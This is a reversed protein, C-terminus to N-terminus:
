EFDELLFDRGLWERLKSFTYAVKPTLLYYPNLTSRDLWFDYIESIKGVFISLDPNLVRVIKNSILDENLRPLDYELEYGAPRCHMKLTLNQTRGNLEYLGHFSKWYRYVPGQPRNTEVMHMFTAGDSIGLGFSLIENNSNILEDFVSGVGYSSIESSGLEFTKPKEGWGVMSFVPDQTKWEAKHHWIYNNLVGTTIEEPQNKGFGTSTFEYNFAPLLVSKDGTYTKLLQYASELIQSRDTTGPLGRVLRRLDTTVFYSM